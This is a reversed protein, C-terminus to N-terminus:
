EERVTVDSPQLNSLRRRLRSVSSAYWTRGRPSVIERNNLEAAIARLPLKSGPDIDALTERYYEAQTAAKATISALAATNGRRARRLAAAGNPNGLKRGALALRVKAIALAERTRQAILERERQAMVAMIGVVTEDANPIDVAVFQVGSDRLNLLFSANRSLRDMKAIVLKAGSVKARRLARLLEPRDSRKGSEVETFSDLIRGDQAAVFTSVSARQADLGLSSHGQRATSVRYYAVFKKSVLM